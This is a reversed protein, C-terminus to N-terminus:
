VAFSASYLDHLFQKYDVGTMTRRINKAIGVCNIAFGQSEWFETAKSEINPGSDDFELVEYNKGHIVEAIRSSDTSSSVHNDGRSNGLGYVFLVKKEELNLSAGVEAQTVPQVENKNLIINM